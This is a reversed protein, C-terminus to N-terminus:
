GYIMEDFAPVLVITSATKVGRCVGADTDPEM